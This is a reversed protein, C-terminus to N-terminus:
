SAIGAVCNRGKKKADYLARDARHILAERTDDRTSTTVGASITLHHVGALPSSAVHRCLEDAKRVTEDFGTEPLIAVFEEGGWRGLTDVSRFLERTRVALAVLTQDGVTHGFRDNVAKFHDIDFMIVSLRHGYRRSRALEYDITETVRRRNAVQTLEDTNALRAFEEGTLQAIQFRQVHSAFFYLAATLVGSALHLQITANAEPRTINRLLFPLSIAVFLALNALSLRLSWRLDPLTFAFVYIIPIWVYLALLDITAGAPLYFRFAM